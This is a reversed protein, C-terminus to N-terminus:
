ERACLSVRGVLPDPYPTAINDLSDVACYTQVSDSGSVPEEIAKLACSCVEGVKARENNTATPNRTGNANLRFVPRSPQTGNAKVLWRIDPPWSAALQRKAITELTPDPATVNATWLSDAATKTLTPASGLITQWTPVLQSRYGYFYYGHWQYQEDCFWSVVFSARQGDIGLWVIPNSPLLTQDFGSAKTNGPLPYCSPAAHVVSALVSLAFGLIWLAALNVRDKM